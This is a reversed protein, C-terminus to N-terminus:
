LFNNEEYRVELLIVLYTIGVHYAYSSTLSVKTASKVQLANQPTNQGTFPQFTFTPVPLSAATQLQQLPPELAQRPGPQSRTSHPKPETKNWESTNGKSSRRYSRFYHSGKTPAYRFSPIRTTGSTRPEPPKVRKTLASIVPTQFFAM